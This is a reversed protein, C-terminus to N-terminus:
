REPPAGPKADLRNELLNIGQLLIFCEDNTRLDLALGSKALLGKMRESLYAISSSVYFPFYWFYVFALILGFVGVAAELNIIRGADAQAARSKREIAQMNIETIGGVDRRLGEFAPQFERFYADRGGRGEVLRRGAGMFSSLSRDIAAVNEAEHIETINGRESKLNAAFENGASEFLTRDYASGQGGEGPNFVAGIVGTRMNELASMMNRAYGLSDYNDKLINAADGSLRGIQLASFVVLFFIILFLFGLGWTLKTKLTM